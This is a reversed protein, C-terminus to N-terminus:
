AHYSNIDFRKKANAAPIYSKTVRKAVVFMQYNISWNQLHLIRQVELENDKTRPDLCCLSLENWGIDKEL